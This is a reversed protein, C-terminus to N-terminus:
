LFFFLWKICSVYNLKEMPLFYLHVIPNLEFFLCDFILYFFLHWSGILFLLTPFIQFLCLFLGDFKVM